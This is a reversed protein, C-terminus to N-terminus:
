SRFPMRTSLALLAAPDEKVAAFEFSQQVCFGSRWWVVVIAVPAEFLMMPVLVLALPAAPGAGEELIQEPRRSTLM